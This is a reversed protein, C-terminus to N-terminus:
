PREFDFPLQYTVRLRPAGAPSRSSFFTPETFSGGENTMSVFFIPPHPLDIAGTQWLVVEPIVDMRITDQSGLILDGAGATRVSSQPSKPGFDVRVGYAFLFTSDGVLGTFPAAPTLELTARALLASDRLYAPWPFRIFGRKTSYTGVSILDPDDVPPVSQVFTTFEATRPIIQKRNATTTDTIPVTVYTTFIPVASAGSPLSSVIGGIRVGTASPGTIRIGVSLIGSDAAPIDVLSLTDGKFVFRYRKGKQISDAITVSDVLTGSAILPALEAYQVSSDLSIPLRVLELLVGSVLTDRALLTLEIAVSDITYHFVTDTAGITDKAFVTDPRPSFEIMAFDTSGNMGNSVRLGGQISTGRPFYGSFTVDSDPIADLVTDHIVPTGGPCTAPCSGPATLQEQCAAISLTLGAAALLNRYFRNM